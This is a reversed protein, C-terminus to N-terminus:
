GSLMSPFLSIAHKRFYRSTAAGLVDLNPSPAECPAFRRDANSRPQNQAQASRSWRTEPSSVAACRSEPVDYPSHPPQRVSLASVPM